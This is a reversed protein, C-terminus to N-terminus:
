AITTFTKTIIQWKGDDFILNFHEEFSISGRFGSEYLSVAAIHGSVSLSTIFYQYPDGKEKMSTESALDAFFAEPTGIILQDGLYGNMRADKHFVSRLMDIDANYTGEIYRQIVLSVREIDSKKM